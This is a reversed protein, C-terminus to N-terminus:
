VYTPVSHITKRWGVLRNWLALYSCLCEWSSKFRSRGGDSRHSWQTPAGWCQLCMWDLLTNTGSTRFLFFISGFIELIYKKLELLIAKVSGFCHPLIDEVPSARSERLSDRNSDWHCYKKKRNNEQETACVLSSSYGLTRLSGTHQATAPKAEM